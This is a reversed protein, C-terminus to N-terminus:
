KPSGLIINGFELSTIIAHSTHGKETHSVKVPIYNLEPACWFITIKSSKQREFKITNFDGVPTKIVEDELRKFQYQKKKSGDIVTFQSASTGNQLSYMAALQYILKDLDGHQTAMYWVEDNVRSVIQDTDWNFDISANRDKKKSDIRQYTYQIPRITDGEKTWLTQETIQAKRLFNAIGTTKVESRFIYHNDKQDAFLSRKMSAVKFGKMSINYTVTFFDPQADEAQARLSTSCILFIFLYFQIIQM